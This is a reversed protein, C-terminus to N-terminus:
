VSIWPSGGHSSGIGVDTSADVCVCFLACGVRKRYSALLHFPNEWTRGTKTDTYGIPYWTSLEVFLPEHGKEHVYLQLKPPLFKFFPTGEREQYGDINRHAARPLACPTPLSTAAAPAVAASAALSGMASSGTAKQEEVSLDKLDWLSKGQHRGFLVFIHDLGSGVYTPDLKQIQQEATLYQDGHPHERFLVKGDECKYRVDVAKGNRKAGLQLGLPLSSLM